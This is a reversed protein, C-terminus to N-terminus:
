REYLEDRPGYPETSRWGQKGMELFARWAAEREAETRALPPEIPIEPSQLPASLSAADEAAVIEVVSDKRERFYSGWVSKMRDVPKLGPTPDGHPGDSMKVWTGRVGDVILEITEGARLALVRDVLRQDGRIHKAWLVHDSVITTGM